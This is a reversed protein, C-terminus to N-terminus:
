EEGVKDKGVGGCMKILLVYRVRVFFGRSVLGVVRDNGFSFRTIERASELKAAVEWDVVGDRDVGWFSVGKKM